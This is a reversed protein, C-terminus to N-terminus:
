ALVGQSSCQTIFQHARSLSYTKMSYAGITLTDVHVESMAGIGLDTNNIQHQDM